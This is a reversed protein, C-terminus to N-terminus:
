TGRANKYRSKDIQYNRLATLIFSRLRGRAVAAREFIHRQLVVDTFFAQTIETAQDRSEGKRRLFAYVPAQYRRILSDLCRRREEPNAAKLSDVITRCTTQFRACTQEFDMATHEPRGVDAMRRM